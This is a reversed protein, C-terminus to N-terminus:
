IADSYQERYEEIYRLKEPHAALDSARRYDYHHGLVGNVIAGLILGLAAFNLFYLLIIATGAAGYINQYPVRSAIFGFLHIMLVWSVTGVVAGPITMRATLAVDPGIFYLIFLVGFTIAISLVLQSLKGFDSFFQDHGAWVMLQQIVRENFFSAAVTLVVMASFLLTIALSMARKQLINRNNRIGYARNTAEILAGVGAMGGWLALVLPFVATFSALQTSADSIAQDVGAILITHAEPPTQEYIFTRLESTVPIGLWHEMLAAAAVLVFLIPLAAFLVSFAVQKALGMADIRMFSNLSERVLKVAVRQDSRIHTMARQARQSVSATVSSM